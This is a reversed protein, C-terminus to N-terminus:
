IHILSLNVILHIEGPDGIWHIILGALLGAIAMTPIVFLGEFFALGHTLMELVIWYGGSIVGGVIGLLAWLFFARSFVFPNFKLPQDLIDLYTVLKRRTRIKM